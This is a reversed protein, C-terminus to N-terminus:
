YIYAAKLLKQPQMYSGGGWGFFFIELQMPHCVDRAPHLELEISVIKDYIGRL